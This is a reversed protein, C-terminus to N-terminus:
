AALALVSLVGGFIALNTGDTTGNVMYWPTLTIPGGTLESAPIANFKSTGIHGNAVLIVKAGRNNDYTSGGTIKWTIGVWRGDAPLIELFGGLGVLLGQCRPPPTITVAPWVAPSFATWVNTVAPVGGPFSGNIASQGLVPIQARFFVNIKEFNADTVDAVDSFCDEADAEATDADHVTPTFAIPLTM